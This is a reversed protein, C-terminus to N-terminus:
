EHVEINKQVWPKVYCNFFGTQVHQSPHPDSPGCYWKDPTLNHQGWQMMGGFKIKDNEFFTFKSFDIMDWLHSSWKFKDKLMPNFKNEYIRNKEWQGRGDNAKFWGRCASHMHEGKDSDTFLDWGIFMLFNIQSSKLFWQTRLINELTEIFACEDSWYNDKYHTWYNENNKKGIDWCFKSTGDKKSLDKLINDVQCHNFEVSLVSERNDGIFSKRSIGSWQTIVLIESFKIGLTLLESVKNICLTSIVYNGAGGIGVNHIQVRSSFDHAINHYWTEDRNYQTFSCGAIVIHKIM